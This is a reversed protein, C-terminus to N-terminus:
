TTRMRGLLGELLTLRDRMGVLLKNRAADLVEVLVALEESNPNLPENAIADM